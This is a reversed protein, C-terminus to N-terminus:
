KRWSKLEDEVLYKDHKVSIDKLGSKGIGALKFFEKWAKDKMKAKEKETERFEVELLSRFFAAMSIDKDKARQKVKQYLSAPLYLQTRHQTVPELNAM